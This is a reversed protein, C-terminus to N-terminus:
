APAGSWTIAAITRKGAVRRATPSRRRSSSTIRAHGTDDGSRGRRHTAAAGGEGASARTSAFSTARQCSSLAACKSPLRRSIGIPQRAPHPAPQPVQDVVPAVPEADLDHEPAAEHVAGGPGLHLLRQQVFPACHCPLRPLRHVM